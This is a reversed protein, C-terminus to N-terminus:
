SSTTFLTAFFWTCPYMAVGFFAGIGTVGDGEPCYLSRQEEFTTQSRTDVIPLTVASVALARKLRPCRMASHTTGRSVAANSARIPIVSRKSVIASSPATGSVGGARPIKQKQCLHM